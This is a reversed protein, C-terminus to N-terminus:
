LINERLRLLIFTSYYCIFRSALYFFLLIIKEDDINFISSKLGVVKKLCKKKNSYFNVSFIM